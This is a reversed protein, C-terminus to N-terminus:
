RVPRYPVARHLVHRKGPAPPPFLTPPPPTLRARSPSKMTTRMFAMARAVEPTNLSASFKGSEKVFIVVGSCIFSSMFWNRLRADHFRSVYGYTDNKATVM